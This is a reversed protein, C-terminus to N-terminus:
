DLCEVIANKRTKKQTRVFHNLVVCTTTSGITYINKQCCGNLFMTMVTSPLGRLSSAFWSLTRLRSSYEYVFIHFDVIITRDSSKNTLPGVTV